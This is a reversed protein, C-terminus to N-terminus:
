HNIQGRRKGKPRAKPMAKAKIFASPQFSVTVLFSLCHNLSDAEEQTKEGKKGNEAASAPALSQPRATRL